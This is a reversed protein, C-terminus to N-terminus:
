SNLKFALGGRINDHELPPTVPRNVQADDQSIPKQDLGAELISVLDRQRRGGFHHARQAAKELREKGYKKSLGLIGLAARYGQEPHKRCNLISQILLTMSEGVQAARLLLKEPTLGRWFQHNPPMHVLLTTYGYNGQAKKHCGVRVSDKYIQITVGDSHVEVFQGALTFPVSYFHKRFQIHYDLHVKVDMKVEQLAFDDKPLLKAFPKDLAEFRELRSIKYLQMPEANFLRVLALVAEQVEALSFFMRDRLRGLIFRQLHLVNSEVVAKDRPKYVRAPLLATDYHAAMKEYLPNLDPDTFSAKLVASKLNDPVLAAPVCGFFRFARVHSQVFDTSTQTLTVDAYSLSSAGWSAVFLEVPRLEGTELDIYSPRDGSYDVFLKDGGIHNQHLTVNKDRAHQSLREYFSSRGLGQPFTERYEKFLLERTVHPRKLEALIRDFDPQPIPDTSASKRPYLKAQLDIQSLGDPLPWSLGAAQFRQLCNFVSGKSIRLSDAILQNSLGGSFHLRLIDLIKRM